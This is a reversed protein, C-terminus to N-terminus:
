KTEAASTNDKNSRGRTLTGLLAGFAGTLISGGEMVGSHLLMGGVGMLGAFVMIHGGPSDLTDLFFGWVQILAKLFEAFKM